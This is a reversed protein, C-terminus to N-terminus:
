TCGRCGGEKKKGNHGATAKKNKQGYSGDYKKKVGYLYPIRIVSQGNLASLANKPLKSEYM